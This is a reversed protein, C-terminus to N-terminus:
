LLPCFTVNFFLSQEEIGLVTDKGDAGDGDSVQGGGDDVGALDELVGHDDGGGGQDDGVVVRGAVGRRAPLIHGDGLTEDARALDHANVQEVVDDDAVADEDAEFLAPQNLGQNLCPVIAPPPPVMVIM